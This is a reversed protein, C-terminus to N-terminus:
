HGMSQCYGCHTCPVGPEILCPGDGQQGTLVPLRLHSAHAKWMPEFSATKPGEALTRAVIERVLARLQDETM